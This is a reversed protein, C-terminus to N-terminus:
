ARCRIFVMSMDRDVSCFLVLLPQKMYLAMNLPLHCIDPVNNEAAFGM